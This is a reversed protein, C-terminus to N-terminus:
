AATGGNPPMPIRQAPRRLELQAEPPIPTSAIEKRALKEAIGATIIAPWMVADWFFKYANPERRGQQHIGQQANMVAIDIGSTWASRCAVIMGVLAYILPINM